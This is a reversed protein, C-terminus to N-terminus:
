RYDGESKKFFANVFSYAVIIPTAVLTAATAMGPAVDSGQASNLADKVVNATHKFPNIM